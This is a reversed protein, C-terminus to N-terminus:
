KIDIDQKFITINKWAICKLKTWKINKDLDSATIPQIDLMNRCKKYVVCTLFLKKKILKATHLKCLAPFYILSGASAATGSSTIKLSVFEEWGTETPNLAQQEGSVSEKGVCM